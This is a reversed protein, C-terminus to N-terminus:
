RTPAERSLRQQDGAPVTSRRREALKSGVFGMALIVLAVFGWIAIVLWGGVDRGLMALWSVWEVVMPDAPLLDANSAVLNGGLGILGHAVWALASWLAIAIWTVAWIVRGM